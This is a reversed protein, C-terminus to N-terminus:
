NEIIEISNIYIPVIPKVAEAQDAAASGFTRQKGIEELVEYSSPDVEGLVAYQPPYGAPQAKRGEKRDQPPDHTVIFFQSGGTNPQGTNAMGVVGYTYVNAKEPPEDPISYGPGNPEQLGFGDPDGTQIVANLEVRHWILGDYFGERALFIFNAVTKDQDEDLDMEIDGCSTSIVASYDVGEELELPPPSPYQKPSAAPPKPGDCAVEDTQPASQSASPLATSPAAAPPTTDDKPEDGGTFIALGIIVVIIVGITILRALRRKREEEARQALVANRNEKQRARKDTPM